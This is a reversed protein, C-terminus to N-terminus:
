ITIWKTRAYDLCQKIRADDLVGCKKAFYLSGEYIAFSYELVSRKETAWMDQDFDSWFYGKSDKFRTTPRALNNPLGCNNKEAVQSAHKLVVASHDAFDKHYQMVSDKFEETINENPHLGDTLEPWDFVDDNYNKGYEGNPSQYEAYEWGHGNIEIIERYRPIDIRFEGTLKAVDYFDNYCKWDTEKWNKRIRIVYGTRLNCYSILDDHMYYYGNDDREIGFTPTWESISSFGNFFELRNAPTSWYAHKDRLQQVVISRQYSPIM